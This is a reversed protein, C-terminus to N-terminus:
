HATGSMLFIFSRPPACASSPHTQATAEDGHRHYCAPTLLNPEAGPLGIPWPSAARNPVITGEQRPQGAPTRRARKLAHRGQDGRAPLFRPQGGKPPVSLSTFLREAPTKKKPPPPPSAGGPHPSEQRLDQACTWSGRREGARRFLQGDSRPTQSRRESASRRARQSGLLQQRPGSPHHLAQQKSRSPPHLFFSDLCAGLHKRSGEMHQM